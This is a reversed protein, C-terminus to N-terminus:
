TPLACRVSCRRRCHGEAGPRRRRARVRRQDAEPSRRRARDARRQRSLAQYLRDLSQARARFRAPESYGAPLRYRRSAQLEDIRKLAQALEARLRRVSSKADNPPSRRRRSPRGGATSARRPRGQTGRRQRQPTKLHGFREAKSEEEHADKLPPKGSNVLVPYDMGFGKGRRASGQALGIIRGINKSERFSNVAHGRGYGDDHSALRVPVGHAMGGFGQGREAHSAFFVDDRGVAGRVPQEGKGLAGLRGAELDDDGAGAARGM